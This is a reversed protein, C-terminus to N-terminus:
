ARIEKQEEPTTKQGLMSEFGRFVHSHSFINPMKINPPVFPPVPQQASKAKSNALEPFWEEMIRPYAWNLLGCSFPLIALGVVLGSKQKFDSLFKESNNIRTTLWKKIRVSRLATEYTTGHETKLHNILRDERKASGRKTRLKELVTEAELKNMIRSDPAVEEPASAFLQEAKRIIDDMLEDNKIDLMRTIEAKPTKNILLQRHYEQLEAQARRAELSTYLKIKAHSHMLANIDRM